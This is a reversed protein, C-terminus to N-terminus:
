VQENEKINSHKNLGLGLDKLALPFNSCIKRTRESPEISIATVQNGLQPERFMSHKIGEALLKAALAHLAQEDKASLCILYNSSTHWQKYQEPFHIGFDAM